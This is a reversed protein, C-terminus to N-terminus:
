HKQKKHPHDNVNNAGSSKKLAAAAENAADGGKLEQGLLYSVDVEAEEEQTAWLSNDSKAMSRGDAHGVPGM